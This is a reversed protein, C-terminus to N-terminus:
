CRDVKIRATANSSMKINVIVEADIFHLVADVFAKHIMKKMPCDPTSLVLTFTVNKGTVELDKIIGLTVLKKKLILIM